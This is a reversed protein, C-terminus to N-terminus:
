AINEIQAGLTAEEYDRITRSSFKTSFNRLRLKCKLVGAVKHLHERLTVRQPHLQCKVFRARKIGMIPDHSINPFVSSSTYDYVTRSWINSQWTLESTKQKPAGTRDDWLNIPNQRPSLRSVSAVCAHCSSHVATVLSSSM